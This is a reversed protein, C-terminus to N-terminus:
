VRKVHNFMIWISQLNNAPQMRKVLDSGNGHGDVFMKFLFSNNRSM